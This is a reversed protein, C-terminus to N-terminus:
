QVNSLSKVQTFVCIHKSIGVKMSLNKVFRVHMLSRERRFTLKTIYIFIFILNYTPLLLLCFNSVHTRLHISLRSRNYYIKQCEHCRYYKSHQTPISKDVNLDKNSLNKSIYNTCDMSSNIFYTRTEKAPDEIM